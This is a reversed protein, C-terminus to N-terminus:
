PLVATRVTESVADWDYGALWADDRGPAGADLVRAIGDALAGAHPACVLGGASREVLATALNDPAATTVVPLGCALAELVAIGFGERESPFAFARASKLLGLLESGDDVDERLEVLDDVGQRRAREALEAAQPGTGIIRCTVDRGGARLLAVADILMDVRKHPLLRGVTTVDVPRGAPRAARVAAMDIGNPAVTVRAGPGLHGRLRRATEDSAAIIEDPLRMAAREVWWALRGRRGLYARWYAPGWVEHWTVVLRRRRLRTIARLPFLQLYPMHDAEVVDFPRAALRLCGLAFLLAQRTSRRGDEYMEVRPCVARYTVGDALRGGEGWWRMTYLEVDAHRALRRGLEHYRLEKGGRHYPFISDTVLAIRPRRERGRGSM